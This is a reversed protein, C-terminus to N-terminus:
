KKRRYIRVMRSVTTCFSNMWAKKSDRKVVDGCYKCYYNM